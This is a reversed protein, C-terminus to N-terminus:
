FLFLPTPHAPWGSVSEHFGPLASKQTNSKPTSTTPFSLPTQPPTLPLSSGPQLQGPYAQLMSWTAAEDEPTQAEEPSLLYHLAEHEKVLRVTETRSM